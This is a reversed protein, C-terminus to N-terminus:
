TSSLQDTGNQQVCTLESEQCPYLMFHLKSPHDRKELGTAIDGSSTEPDAM